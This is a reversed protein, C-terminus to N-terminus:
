SATDGFLRYSGVVEFQDPRPPGALWGKLRDQFEAFEPIAFLPNPGADQDVELIAVFTAGDVHKCSAYRVGQPQNEQLAAFMKQAAAEVDDAHDPKISATVMLVSM